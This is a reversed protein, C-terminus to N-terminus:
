WGFMMPVLIIGFAISLVMIGGLILNMKINFKKQRKNHEEIFAIRKEEMNLAWVDYDSNRKEEM